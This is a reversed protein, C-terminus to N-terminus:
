RSGKVPAAAASRSPARAPGSATAATRVDICETCPYDYVYPSGNSPMTPAMQMATYTPPQASDALGVQAWAPSAIMGLALGIALVWLQFFCRFM